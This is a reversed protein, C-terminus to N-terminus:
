RTCYASTAFCSPKALTPVDYDYLRERLISEASDASSMGDAFRWHIDAFSADRENADSLIQNVRSWFMELKTYM